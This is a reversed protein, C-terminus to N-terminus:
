GYDDYSRKGRCDTGNVEEETEKSRLLSVQIEREQM